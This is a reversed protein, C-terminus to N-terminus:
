ISCYVREGRNENVKEDYHKIIQIISQVKNFSITSISVITQVTKLIQYKNVSKISVSNGDMQRTQYVEHLMGYACAAGSPSFNLRPCSKNEVIKGVSPVRLFVSKLYGWRPPINISFCHKLISLGLPPLM